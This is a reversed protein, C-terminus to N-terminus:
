VTDSKRTFVPGLRPNNIKSNDEEHQKKLTDYERLTELMSEFSTGNFLVVFNGDEKLKGTIPNFLSLFEDPCLSLFTNPYRTASKDDAFIVLFNCLLNPNKQCIWNVDGITLDTITAVKANKTREKEM